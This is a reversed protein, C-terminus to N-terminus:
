DIYCRRIEERRFKNIVLDLKSRDYFYRGHKELAIDANVVVLTEDLDHAVREVYALAQGYSLLSSAESGAPVPKQKLASKTYEDRMRKCAHDFDQQTFSQVGSLMKRIREGQPSFFGIEKEEMM